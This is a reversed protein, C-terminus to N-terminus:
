KVPKPKGYVKSLRARHFNWFDSLDVNGTMPDVERSTHVETGRMFITLDNFATVTDQYEPLRELSLIKVVGTGGNSHHESWDVSAMLDGSKM